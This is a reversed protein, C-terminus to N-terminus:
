EYFAHFFNGWFDVPNDHWFGANAGNGPINLMLFAIGVMLIGISIYDLNKRKGELKYILVM